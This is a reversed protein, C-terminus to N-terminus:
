LQTREQLEAERTPWPQAGPSTVQVWLTPSL